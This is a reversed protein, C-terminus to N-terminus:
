VVEKVRKKGTVYEYIVSQKHKSMLQLQKEKKAIVNDIKSCEADLFSIIKIQEQVPPKTVVYQSYKDAGINQITAQTFVMNKWNDYGNGLTTYYLFKPLVKTADTEAKILYGAFAASGYSSMYYFTKGVTAGSRAFLVDGDKLLYPKAVKPLLSQKGEDKLQNDDTIDTIRIYRPYEENFEDGLENAGYQLPEKLVYKLRKTEWHAPIMRIWPIGSDKMEVNKDLGKTVTETILSKKYKRLLEIQRELNAIIKDIKSCSEDLLEVIRKQESVRPVCIYTDRLLQQTISFVKIGMVNARIQDRWLDTLFLYALYKPYLANSTPRAIISHYGAFITDNNDIFACNGVGAYDESTDAFIFDNKQVLCSKGTRLFSEPVYRYLVESLGTGTNDKSHVQGYSIVPIGEEVLDDKTISLGKGFSFCQRMKLVDWEQPFSINEIIDNM